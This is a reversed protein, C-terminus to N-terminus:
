IHNWIIDATGGALAMRLRSKYRTMRTEMGADSPMVRVFCSRYLVITLSELAVVAAEQDSSQRRRASIMELLPVSEFPDGFGVELAKLKPCIVPIGDVPTLAQIIEDDTRLAISSLFKMYTLQPLISCCAFIQSSSVNMYELTLSQLQRRTRLLFPSLELLCLGPPIHLPRPIINCGIHLRQLHPFVLTSLFHALRSDPSQTFMVVSLRFDLLSPIVLLAQPRHFLGDFVRLVCQEVQTCHQLISFYDNLSLSSQDPYHDQLRLRTLQHWPVNIDAIRYLPISTSLSYLRDANCFNILLLHGPSLSRDTPHLSIEELRPLPQVALQRFLSFFSAPMIVSLTLLRHCSSEICASLMKYPVSSLMFTEQETTSISISPHADHAISLKLPHSGLHDLWFSLAAVHSVLTADWDRIRAPLHLNLASWLHPTSLVVQRWHSCIRSLLLPADSTSPRSGESPLCYKFINTIVEPPMRRAPTLLAECDEVYKRADAEESELQKLMKRHRAIAARKASLSVRSEAIQAKIDKVQSVSPVYNTGLKDKISSSKWDKPNPVDLMKQSSM